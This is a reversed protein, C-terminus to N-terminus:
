GGARTMTVIEPHRGFLSVPRRDVPRLGAGAARALHDDVDPLLLVARGTPALVRALEHWFRHPRAALVGAARVQRDWPPNTVVVDVAGARFPLRGADAVAWAVGRGAGNATAAAIAAPDADTGVAGPTGAELPITGSGCFPDLLRAGPGPDALRLMAAALPPHLAGPRTARRYDRRHLPRGAIRLALVARDDAVTVRWTLGAPPTGHRRSRYPLGLAAALPEGVADELDYRTFNRRGLFSASVDMTSPRDVAGFAARRSVLAAADVAAAAKALLRLDAKARGIGGVEAAVLFVDDACRLDLVEPGPTDCTWWVERHAIRDVAGLSRIEQAALTEAGRVTRALLRATTM